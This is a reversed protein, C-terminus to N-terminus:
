AGISGIWTFFNGVATLVSSFGFILGTLVFTFLLMMFVCGLFRIM